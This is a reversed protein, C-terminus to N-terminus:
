PRVSSRSRLGADSRHPRRIVRTAAMQPDSSDHPADRAREACDDQGRARDRTTGVRVLLRLSRRARRRGLGLELRDDDARNALHMQHLTAVAERPEAIDERRELRVEHEHAHPDVREPLVPELVRRELHRVRLVERPRPTNGDLRDVPEALVIEGSRGRRELRVVDGLDLSALGLEEVRRPEVRELLRVARLEALLDEERDARGSPMPSPVRERRAAARPDLM